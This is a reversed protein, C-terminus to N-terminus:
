CSYIKKQCIEGEKANQYKQTYEDINIIKRLDVSQHKRHASDSKISFYEKCQNCYFNGKKTLPLKSSQRNLYNELYIEKDYGCQCRIKIKEPSEHRLKLLPFDKCKPCICYNM